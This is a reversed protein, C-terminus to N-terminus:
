HWLLHVELELSDAHCSPTVLGQDTVSEQDVRPPGGKLDPWCCGALCPDFSAGEDHQGHHSVSVLRDFPIHSVREYGTLVDDSTALPQVM